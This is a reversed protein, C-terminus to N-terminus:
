HLSSTESVVCSTAIRTATTGCRRSSSYATAHPTQPRVSCSNCKSACLYANQHAPTFASSTFYLQFLCSFHPPFFFEIVWTIAGVWQRTMSIGTLTISPLLYSAVTDTRSIGPSVTVALINSKHPKIQNEPSPGIASSAMPSAPTLGPDPLADLIRQLHRMFVATRLARQGELMWSSKNVTSPTVPKSKDDSDTRNQSIPSYTVSSLWPNFAPAAAAYFPNVVSIIRIDREIPAVLMAPLLLTTLLFTAMAGEDRNVSEENRLDTLNGIGGSWTGIHTYEHALILADLRRDKENESSVFRECFQKIQAPSDLQCPEAYIAENATTSRLLSLIEDHHSTLTPTPVLAIIHAGKKALFELM